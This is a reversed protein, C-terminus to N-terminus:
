QRQSEKSKCLMISLDLNRVRIRIFHCQSSPAYTWARQVHYRNSRRLKVAEEWESSRPALSQSKAHEESWPEPHVQRSRFEKKEREISDEEFLCLYELNINSAFDTEYEKLIKYGITYSIKGKIGKSKSWNEDNNMEVKRCSGSDASQTNM